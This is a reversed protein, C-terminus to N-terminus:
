TIMRSVNFNFALKRETSMPGVCDNCLSENTAEGGVLWVLSPAYSGADLLVDSM